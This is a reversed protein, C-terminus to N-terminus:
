YSALPSLSQKPTCLPSSPSPSLTLALEAAAEKEGPGPERRSVTVEADEEMMRSRGSVKPLKCNGSSGLARHTQPEARGLAEPGGKSGMVSHFCLQFSAAEQLHGRPCGRGVLTADRTGLGGQDLLARAPSAQIHRTRSRRSGAGQGASHEHQSSPAGGRGLAPLNQTHWSHGVMPISPAGATGAPKPRAEWHWGRWSSVDCSQCSKYGLGTTAWTCSGGLEGM